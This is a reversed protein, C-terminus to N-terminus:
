VSVYTWCRALIPDILGAAGSIGGMEGVSTGLRGTGNAGVIVGEAMDSSNANKSLTLFSMLLLCVNLLNRLSHLRNEWFRIPFIVSYWLAEVNM